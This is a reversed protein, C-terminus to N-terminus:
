EQTGKLSNKRDNWDPGEGKRAKCTVIGKLRQIEISAHILLKTVKM